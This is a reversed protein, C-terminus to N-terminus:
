YTEEMARIREAVWVQSKQRGFPPKNTKESLTATARAAPVEAESTRRAEGGDATARAGSPGWM